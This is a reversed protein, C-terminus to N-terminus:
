SKPAAVPSKTPQTGKTAITPGIKPAASRLKAQMPMFQSNGVIKVAGSKELEEFVGKWFANLDSM